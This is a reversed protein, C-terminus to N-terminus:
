GPSLQTPFLLQYADRQSFATQEDAETQCTNFRLAPARVDSYKGDKLLYKRLQRYFVGYEDDEIKSKWDSRGTSILVQEAYSAMTGNLPLEHDIELGSPM